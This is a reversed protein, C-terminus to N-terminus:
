STYLATCLRLRALLNHINNYTISFLFFRTCETGLSLLALYKLLSVMNCSPYIIQYKFKTKLVPTLTNRCHEEIVMQRVVLMFVGSTLIIRRCAGPSIKPHLM